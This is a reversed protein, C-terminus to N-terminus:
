EGTKQYMSLHGINKYSGIKPASDRMKDMATRQKTTEDEWESRCYVCTVRGGMKSRRWQEFCEKHFNQGCAAKCWVIEEGPEMDFVCIPCEGDVPKRVVETTATAAEHESLDPARTVPADAFIQELEESMFALQYQLYLPAKLIIILADIYTLNTQSATKRV